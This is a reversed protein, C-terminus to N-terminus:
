TWKGNQCTQGNPLTAGSSYGQGAYMCGGPPLNPGGPAPAPNQTVPGAPGQTQAPKAHQQAQAGLTLSALSGILLLNFLRKKAISAISM